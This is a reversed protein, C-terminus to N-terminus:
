DGMWRGSFSDVQFGIIYVVSLSKKSKSQALNFKKKLRGVFDPSIIGAKGIPTMWMIWM